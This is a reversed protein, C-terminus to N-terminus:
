GRLSLYHNPTIIIQLEKGTLAFYLNQLRHVYNINAIYGHNNSLTFYQEWACALYLGKNYGRYKNSKEFGFKLLWEETLPIPNVRKEKIKQYTRQMMLPSKIKIEVNSWMVFNGIRLESAKM